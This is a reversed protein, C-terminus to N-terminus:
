LLCVRFAEMVKETTLGRSSCLRTVSNDGFLAEMEDLLASRIVPRVAADTAMQTEKSEQQQEEESKWIGYFYDIWLAEQVLNRSTSIRMKFQDLQEAVWSLSSNSGLALATESVLTELLTAKSIDKFKQRSTLYASAADAVKDDKNSETAVVFLLSTRTDHAEQLIRDQGYREMDRRCEEILATKYTDGQNSFKSQQRVSPPSQLETQLRHLRHEVWKSITDATANRFTQKLEPEIHQASETESVSDIADLDLVTMPKNAIVYDKSAFFRDLSQTTTPHSANLTPPRPVILQHIPTNSPVVSTFDQTLTGFTETYVFVLTALALIVVFLVLLGASLPTAKADVTTDM